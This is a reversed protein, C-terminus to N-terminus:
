CPIRVVDHGVYVRLGKLELFVVVNTREGRFLVGLEKLRAEDISARVFEHLGAM